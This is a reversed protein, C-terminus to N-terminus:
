SSIQTDCPKWIERTTEVDGDPPPGFRAVEVDNLQRFRLRQGADREGEPSVFEASHRDIAADPSQGTSTVVRTHEVTLTESGNTWCGYIADAKAGTALVFGALAACSTWFALRFM